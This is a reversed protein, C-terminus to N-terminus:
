SKDLKMLGFIRKDTKVGSVLPAVTLGTGFTGFQSLIHSYSAAQWFMMKNERCISVFYGVYGFSARTSTEGDVLITNM